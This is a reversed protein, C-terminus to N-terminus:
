AENGQRVSKTRYMLLFLVIVIVAFSYAATTVDQYDLRAFKNNMYHQLTYISEDPYSGGIFYVERFIKFANVVALVLVLFATPLIQPLTIFWERKLWGAGELAAYEYLSEPVSQLAATFIVVSFGLNKWIYLLVIPARLASGELWFVREFGLAVVLRNVVGGYDFLILWIILMASSPMLYPMLLANRFFTDGAVRKRLLGALWFSLAFIPPACLLSLEITNKLGLQFVENQWVRLYNDFGVFRNNISGDTLSFWIGWAFPVLYFALLGLLGPLLYFIVTKKRFM